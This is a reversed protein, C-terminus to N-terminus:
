TSIPRISSLVVHFDQAILEVDGRLECADDEPTGHERWGSGARFIDLLSAAGQIFGRFFTSTRARTADSASIHMTNGNM